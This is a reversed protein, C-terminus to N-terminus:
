HVQFLGNLKIPSITVLKYAKQPLINSGAAVLTGSILWKAKYSKDCCTEVEAITAPLM